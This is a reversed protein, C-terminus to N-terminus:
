RRRDAEVPAGGEGDVAAVARPAGHARLAADVAPSPGDRHRMALLAGLAADTGTAGVALLVRDRVGGRAQRLFPQLVSLADEGHVHRAIRGTAHAVRPDDLTQLAVCLAGVVSREGAEACLSALSIKREVDETEGIAALLLAQRSIGLIADRLVPRERLSESAELRARGEGHLAIRVLASATDGPASGSASDVLVQVLELTSTSPATDDIPPTEARYGTAALYPAHREPLDAAARDDVLCLLRKPGPKPQPLDAVRKRECMTFEAPATGKLTEVTRFRHLFLDNGLPQMGVHEAVVVYRADAVAHRLQAPLTGALVLLAFALLLRHM